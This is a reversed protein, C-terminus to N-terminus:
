CRAAVALQGSCEGEVVVWLELQHARQCAAWVVLLQDGVEEKPIHPIPQHQLIHRDAAAAPTAGQLKCLCAPGAWEPTFLLWTVLSIPTPRRRTRNHVLSQQLVLKYSACHIGYDVVMCSTHKNASKFQATKPQPQLTADVEAHALATDLHAADLM